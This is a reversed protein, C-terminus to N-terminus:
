FLLLLYPSLIVMLLGLITVLTNSLGPTPKYVSTMVQNKDSLSQLTAGGQDRKSQNRM